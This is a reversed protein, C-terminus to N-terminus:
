HNLVVRHPGKGTLRTLEKLYEMHLKVSTVHWPTDWGEDFWWQPLRTAMAPCLDWLGMGDPRDRLVDQIAERVAQYRRLPIRCSLRGGNVTYLDIMEESM